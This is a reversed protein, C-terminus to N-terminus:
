CRHSTMRVRTGEASPDIWLQEVLGAMMGLGRGRYGPDTPPERWVGSDTVTVVVRFEAPTGAATVAEVVIDGARGGLYAHEVSNTVAENVALVLDEVTESCCGGDTLWDSLLGRAM